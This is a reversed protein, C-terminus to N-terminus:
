IPIVFLVIVFIDDNAAAPVSTLTPPTPTHASQFDIGFSM